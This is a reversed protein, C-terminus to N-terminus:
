EEEIDEEDEMTEPDEGTLIDRLDEEKFMGQEMVSDRVFIDCNARVALAIADSPRADVTITQHDVLLNLNAYYVGDWLDDITIKELEAKLKEILNRMLDHTMPRAVQAKELAIRIAFAECPGIWIPLCRNQSDKLIVCDHYKVDKGVGAVQVQIEKPANM